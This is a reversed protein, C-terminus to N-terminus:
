ATIHSLGVHCPFTPVETDKESGSTVLARIKASALAYHIHEPRIILEILDRGAERGAERGPALGILVSFSVSGDPNPTITTWAEIIGPVESLM